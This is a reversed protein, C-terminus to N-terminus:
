FKFLVFLLVGGDLSGFPFLLDFAFCTFLGVALFAM